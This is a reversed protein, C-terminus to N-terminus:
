IILKIKSKCFSSVFIYFILSCIDLKYWNLHSFQSSNKWTIKWTHFFNQWLFCYFLHSLYPYNAYSMEYTLHKNVKYLLTKKKLAMELKECCDQKYNYLNTGFLQLKRCNRFYSISSSDSEKTIRYYNLGTFYISSLKIGIGITSTNTKLFLITWVVNYAGNDECLKTKKTM